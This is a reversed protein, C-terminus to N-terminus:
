KIKNKKTKKPFFLSTYLINLFADRLLEIQTMILLYIYIAMCPLPQSSLQLSYSVGQNSLGIKISYCSFLQLRARIVHMLTRIRWPTHIIGMVVQIVSQNDGEVQIYTFRAKMDQKQLQRYILHHMFKIVVQIFGGEWDFDKLHKHHSSYTAAMGDLKMEQILSSMLTDQFIINDCSKCISWLLMSIQLVDTNPDISIYITYLMRSQLRPILFPVVLTNQMNERNVTRTNHCM